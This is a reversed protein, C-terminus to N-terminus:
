TWYPVIGYDRSIKIDYEAEMEALLAGYRAEFKASNEALNTPLPQESQDARDQDYTRGIDWQNPIWICYGGAQDQMREPSFMLDVYKDPVLATSLVRLSKSEVTAYTIAAGCKECFRPAGVRAPTENSSCGESCLQKKSTSTRWANPVKAYPGIYVHFSM